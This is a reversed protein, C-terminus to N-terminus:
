YGRSRDLEGDPWGGEILSKINLAIRRAGYEPTTAAAAHPTVHVRPHRWYPDDKALPERRFVDLAAGATHESDLSALLAQDVVIDGRSMNILYSGRPMESLRQADILNCTDPTPPLLSILIDTRNLFSRLQDGGFYSKVGPIKKESRSWGAVDFQLDRLTAAVGAGVTGMGLVGVRCTSNAHIKHRLWESNSQQGAYVAYNRHFHLVWHLAHCTMDQTLVPDILRFIPVDDPLLEDRLIHTVGAGISFIAKLNPYGALAGVPPMWTLVYDIDTPDGVDAVTRFDLGDLYPVMHQRWPESDEGEWLFLVTPAKGPTTTRKGLDLIKNM